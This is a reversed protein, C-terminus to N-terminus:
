SGAVGGSGPRTSSLRGAPDNCHSRLHDQAVVWDTAPVQDIVSRPPQRQLGPLTAANAECM